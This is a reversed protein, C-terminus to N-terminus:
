RAGSLAESYVSETQAAIAMWSFNAIALERGRNGFRAGLAPDSLLQNLANAFQVHDDAEVLFGNTGDSIM